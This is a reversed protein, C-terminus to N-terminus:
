LVVETDGGSACTRGFETPVTELSDLCREASQRDALLYLSLVNNRVIGACIQIHVQNERECFAQYNNQAWLHSDHVNFEGECTFCAEDRRSNNRSFVEDNMCSCRFLATPQFCTSGALLAIVTMPSGRKSYDWKEHWLAHPETSSVNGSVSTRPHRYMGHAVAQVHYVELRLLCMPTQIVDVTIVYRAKQHLLVM